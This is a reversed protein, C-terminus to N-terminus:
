MSNNGLNNKISEYIRKILFENLQGEGNDILEIIEELFRVKQSLEIKTNQERYEASYLEDELNEIKKNLKLVSNLIERDTM